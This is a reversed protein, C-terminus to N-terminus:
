HEASPPEAAECDVPTGEEGGATRPATDLGEFEYCAPVVPLELEVEDDNSFGLTLTVFGGTTFDGTVRVGASELQAASDAPIRLGELGTVEGDEGEVSVLRVSEDNRNNALQAVLTGSGESESVVLANIVDVDADRETTGPTLQNVQNTAEDFGCGALLGATLLAGVLAASRRPHLM